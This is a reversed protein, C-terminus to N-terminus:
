IDMTIIAHGKPDCSIKTTLSSLRIMKNRKPNVNFLGYNRSKNCNYYNTKLKKDYLKYCKICPNTLVYMTTYYRYNKTEKIFM